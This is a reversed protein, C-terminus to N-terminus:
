RDSNRGEILGSVPIDKHMAWHASRWMIEKMSKKWFVTHASMCNLYVIRGNGVERTWGALRDLPFDPKEGYFSEQTDGSAKRILDYDQRGRFLPTYDDNLMEAGFIEDVEEFAEVDKTIAHNQNMDYFRSMVLPGHMIMKKVGFLNLVKQNSENAISCHFPLIGMGRNVVNDMIADEQEPTMWIESGPRDEVLGATTFEPNGGGYRSFILLDTNDIVEPTIFNASQAFMLRWGTVGLIRRWHREYMMSNHWYDGALIVVRVEGPKKPQALVNSSFASGACAAIGTKLVNRRSITKSDLM